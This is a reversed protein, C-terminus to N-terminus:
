RFQFGIKFGVQMAPGKYAPSYQYRKYNRLGGFDTDNLQAKYGLGFYVDILFDGAVKQYGLVANALGSSIILNKKGPGFGYYSLGDEQYPYFGETDITIEQYRYTLGYAVYPSSRKDRFKYKQSIGIGAGRIKDFREDEKILFIDGDEIRGGYVEATFVYGFKSGAPQLEIDIKGTNTLLFFPQVAVSVSSKPTASDAHTTDTTQTVQANVTGTNISIELCLLALVALCTRQYYSM